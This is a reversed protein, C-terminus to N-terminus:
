RFLEEAWELVTGLLDLIDALLERVGGMVKAM